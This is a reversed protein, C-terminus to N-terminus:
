VSGRDGTRIIPAHHLRAGEARHEPVVLAWVIGRPVCASTHPRGDRRNDQRDAVAVPIAGRRIGGRVVYWGGLFIVAVGLFGPFLQPSFAFELPLAVPGCVVMLLM